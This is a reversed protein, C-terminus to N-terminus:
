NENKKDFIYNYSKSFNKYLIENRKKYKLFFNYKKMISIIGQFQEKYNENVEILISKLKDSKLCLQAGDLIDHENGDVDIKIYDPIELMKNSIMFDISLGLLKYKQKFKLENGEFNKQTGYSSMSWGEIFESDFMDSYFNKSNTLPIQNILIKESLKNISINRSLIRLNNTSPEFSHTIIDSHKRAAYISYLGINAGIDWFIVGPRNSFTDIWELTEPEKTFITEVRWKSVKNPTFFNTKTFCIEKQSYLEDDIFDKLLHLLSKKTLFRFFKDVFKITKFFITLVFKKM